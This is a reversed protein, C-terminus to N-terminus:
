CGFAKKYRGYDGMSRTKCSTKRLRIWVGHLGKLQRDKEIAAEKLQVANRDVKFYRSSRSSGKVGAALRQKAKKVAKERERM